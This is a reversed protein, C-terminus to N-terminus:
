DKFVVHVIIKDTTSETSYSKIEIPKSNAFTKIEFVDPNNSDELKVILEENSNKEVSLKANKPNITNFIFDVGNDKELIGTEVQCSEIENRAEAILENVKNYTDEFFQLFKKSSPFSVKNLEKELLFLNSFDDKTEKFNKKLIGISDNLFRKM